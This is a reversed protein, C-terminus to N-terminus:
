ITVDNQPIKKLEKKIVYKQCHYYEKPCYIPIHNYFCAKNLSQGGFSINANLVRAVPYLLPFFCECFHSSM